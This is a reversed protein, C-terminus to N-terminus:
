QNNTSDNPVNVNWIAFPLSALVDWHDPVNGFKALERQLDSIHAYIPKGLQNLLQVHRDVPLQLLYPVLHDIFANIM